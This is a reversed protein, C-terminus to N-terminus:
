HILVVSYLDHRRIVINVIMSAQYIRSKCPSFRCTHLILTSLVILLMLREIVLELFEHVIFYSYGEVDSVGMDM